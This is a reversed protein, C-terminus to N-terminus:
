FELSTTLIYERPKQFRYRMVVGDLKTLRTTILDDNNFVNNVNLQCLLTWRGNRLKMRYAANFDYISETGAKVTIPSIASRGNGESTWLSPDPSGAAGGTFADIVRGMRIRTGGGISFGQLMGSMCTYNTRLNISHKTNGRPSLGNFITYNEFIAEQVAILAERVTDITGGNIIPNYDNPNATHSGGPSGVVPLNLTGNSGALWLPSHEKLYALWELGQNAVETQNYAYNAMFRLNRTPNAVLEVEYGKSANDYLLATADFVPVQSSTIVGAAGLTTWIDAINYRSLAIGGNTANQLRTSYHTLTAFLRDGFLNLKIGYDDTIGRQNPPIEYQHLSKQDSNIVRNNGLTIDFSESHNYFISGWKTVDVVAGVSFANGSFSQTPSSNVGVLYPIGNAYTSTLGAFYDLNEQRYGGVLHIRENLLGISGAAMLSDQERRSDMLQAVNRPVYQSYLKRPTGSAYNFIDGQPLTPFGIDASGVMAAPIYYYYRVQNQVTVPSANFSLADKTIDPGDMYLNDLNVGSLSDDRREYLLAGQLKAWGALDRQYSLTARLTKATEDQIMLFRRELLFYDGQHPNPGSQIPTTASNDLYLGLGAGEAQPAIVDSRQYNYSLEVDMGEFLRRDLYLSLTQFKRKGGTVLNGEIVAEKPVLNFDTMITNDGLARRYNNYNYVMTGSGSGDIPVFNTNGYLTSVGSYKNAPGWPRAQYSDVDSLEGEARISTNRDIRWNAALHVREQDNHEVKRWTNEESKLVNVRVALKGPILVQNFDGLSRYGSNSDLRMTLKSADAVPSAQKTSTNIVGAAPGVGFLISNPGRSFDLRETNYTDIEALMEFYNLTRKGGTLGRITVALPAPGNFTNGNFNNASEEYDAKINIAYDLAQVANTVALDELLEKNFASVAAPVDKLNAKLRTGALTNPAYYGKDESANVIFPNLVVVSEDVSPAAPTKSQAFLLPAGFSGLAMVLFLATNKM